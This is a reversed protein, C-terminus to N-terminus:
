LYDPNFGQPKDDPSRTRWSGSVIEDSGVEGNYAYVWAEDSGGDELDKMQVGASIYTHICSHVDSCGDKMSVHIYTNIHKHTHRHTHAKIHTHTYTYIYIYIHVCVCVCAM